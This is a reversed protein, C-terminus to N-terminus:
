KWYQKKVRIAKVAIGKNLNAETSVTFSGTGIQFVNTKSFSVDQFSVAYNSTDLSYPVGRAISLGNYTVSYGAYSVPLRSSKLTDANITVTAQANEIGIRRTVSFQVNQGSASYSAYSVSLSKDGLSVLSVPNFTVGFSGASVSSVYGRKFNVDQNSVSVTMASVTAVSNKRLGVSQGSVTFSSNEIQVSVGSEVNLLQEDFWGAPQTEPAFWGSAVVLIDFLGIM